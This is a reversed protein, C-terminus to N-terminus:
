GTRATGTHQRRRCQLQQSHTSSDSIQSRATDRGSAATGVQREPPAAARHTALVGRQWDDRGLYPQAMRGYPGMCATPLSFLTAEANGKQAGQSHAHWQAGDWSDLTTHIGQPMCGDQGCQWRTWMLRGQAIPFGTHQSCSQRSMSKAMECSTSKM